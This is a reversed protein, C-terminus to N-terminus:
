EEPDEFGLIAAFAFGAAYSIAVGILYKVPSTTILSLQLGSLEPIKAAVHMMAMSSGGVAGGLCSALFPKGLPITVGWMLPEGIGLMGVPLANRCTKKLRANKTKLYIYFAAGVQGAGAMCTVPLLYTVGFDSILQANVAILGHHMGTMVLPLYVLTALGALFPVNYIIYHVFQGITESIFGCVPQLVLLGAFTMVFIMILPRLFTDLFDPIVRALRKELQAGLGAVVMVSIVGGRGAVCEVIGFLNVGTISAATLISALVAGLIPTGGFEKAANYGVIIPLVNFVSYAITGLIKGFNTEEFGPFFVYGSEYIAVMLGCAIFAPIIPIFIKAVTKMLRKAPTDNKKRNERKRIEAEDVEICRIGTRESIDMAIRKSKGPGVVVQINHDDVVVGLVSDVKRLADLDCKTVDKVEIRVRTMCNEIGRLNEKGGLLTIVQDTIQNNSM